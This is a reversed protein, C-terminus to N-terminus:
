GPLEADVVLHEIGAAHAIELRVADVGAHRQHRIEKHGVVVHGRRPDAYIRQRGKAPSLLRALLPRRLPAASGLAFPHDKTERLSSAFASTSAANTAAAAM